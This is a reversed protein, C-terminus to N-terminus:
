RVRRWLDDMVPRDARLWDTSGVCNDHACVRCPYPHKSGDACAKNTVTPRSGWRNGTRVRGPSPTSSDELSISLEWLQGLDVNVDHRGTGAPTTTKLELQVAKAPTTPLMQLDIDEGCTPWWLSVQSRYRYTLYLSSFHELTKEPASVSQTMLRVISLPRQRTRMGRTSSAKRSRSERPLKSRCRGGLATGSM